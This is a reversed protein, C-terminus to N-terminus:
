KNPKWFRHQRALHANARGTGRKRVKLPPTTVSKTVATANKLGGGGGGLEQCTVLAYLKFRAIATNPPLRIFFAIKHLGVAFNRVHFRNPRPKRSQSNVNIATGFAFTTTARQTSRDPWHASLAEENLRGGDVSVAVTGNWDYSQLHEVALVGATSFNLSFELKADAM